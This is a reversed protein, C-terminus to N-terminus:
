ERGPVTDFPSGMPRIAAGAPPPMETLRRVPSLLPPIFAVIGGAGALVLTPRLGITGGLLGGLFGGLPITGWVIFRMTAVLRGLMRDPTITQALSRVNINYLGGGFTAIVGYAVMVPVASGRTALPLLAPGVGILLAAAIITPGIGVRRAIRAATFAGALFGVNGVTLILGITGPRLGLTRVAFLLLVAQAMMSFLNLTATCAALPRFLPNRLVYRLGEGIQTRMRPPTADGSPTEVPAEESRIALLFGVSGLYSVADALIAVPAKLAQVLVGALGPGALQAGSRSIELNSNGEVLRDRSILSPMYAGYAVDFFVTLIGSVFGVVYLQAVHLVGLAYALPISGLTVFRGVDAIVLIPKRAMRDVWVGAPLGFLVFPLFEATSLLGVQFPSADFLLIATLPLALVTIQSGVQSITQGTWLKMFEGHRWLSPRRDVAPSGKTV